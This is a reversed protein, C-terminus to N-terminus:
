AVSCRKTFLEPVQQELDDELGLKPALLLAVLLSVLLSLAAEKRRVGARGEIVSDLFKLVARFSTEVLAAGERASLTVGPSFARHARGRIEATSWSM